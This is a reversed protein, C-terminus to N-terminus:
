GWRGKQRQSKEFLTAINNKLNKLTYKEEFKDLAASLTKLEFPKVSLRSCSSQFARIAFTDLFDHITEFCINSLQKLLEFGNSPPM